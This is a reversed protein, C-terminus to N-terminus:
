SSCGEMRRQKHAETKICYRLITRASLQLSPLGWNLSLPSRTKVSLLPVRTEKGRYMNHRGPAMPSLVKSGKFLSNTTITWIITYARSIVPRGLLGSIFQGNEKPPCTYLSLFPFCGLLFPSVCTLKRPGQLPLCM